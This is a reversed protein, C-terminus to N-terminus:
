ASAIAKETLREGSETDFVHVRGPVPSLVVTEGANPHQRGDVRAVVDTRKGNIDSHGYLYGDAGLEEVLDVTVSLGQGGASGVQIDEPRVGVTVQNGTVKSLTSAEVPVVQSGFRVGGEAVDVPFLNMAPSGIFGAVFVNNPQEYLDRPTGVQQLVGDKLVAIRDGM